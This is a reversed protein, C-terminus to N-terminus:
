VGFLPRRGRPATQTRQSPPAMTLERRPVDQPDQQEVPGPKTEDNVKSEDKENHEDVM